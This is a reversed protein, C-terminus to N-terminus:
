NISSRLKNFDLYDPFGTNTKSITKDNGPDAM